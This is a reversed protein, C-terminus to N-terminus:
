TGETSEYPRFRGPPAYEAEACADHVQEFLQTNGVETTPESGDVPQTCSSCRLGLLVELSQATNKGANHGAISVECDRGNIMKGSARFYDTFTRTVEDAGISKAWRIFARTGRVYVTPTVIREGTGVSGITDALDHQKAHEVIAALEDLDTARTTATM